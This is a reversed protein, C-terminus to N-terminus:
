WGRPSFLELRWGSWETLFFIEDGWFRYFCEVSLLRILIYWLCLINALAFFSYKIVTELFRLWNLLWFSSLFLWVRCEKAGAGKSCSYFDSLYPEEWLPWGFVCRVNKYHCRSQNNGKPPVYKVVINDPINVHKHPAHKSTQRWCKVVAAQWAVVYSTTVQVDRM